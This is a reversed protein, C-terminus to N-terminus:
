SWRYERHFDAIRELVLLGRDEFHSGFVDGYPEPDFVADRVGFARDENLDAMADFEKVTLQRRDDLAAGLGRKALKEQAAQTIVGSFFESACGSGYSFLGVRKPGAFRGNDILSCLAMYLAASYTNGMRVGYALSPSIRSAFDAEVDRASARKQKRLLMRHAGKVMGAFPTHLALYDFTDVIDAGAVRDRYATFSEELCRMYSLLSLDPNVSDMDHRPRLTDMVEFTHYGSAGADLELIEPRDSVLMAVAGAGESPEWYSAKATASAADTAVALAKIGPVPSSAVIGAASMLAATGGYCAHKVEFSRCRPSLGLHHHVYTSIPKGFDLGSETGVILLEIRDREAPSMADVIPKAANVANTVPDECPLNVSRQDMMLNAFRNMDLDRDEFLERVGVSARGVYANISEVGTGM